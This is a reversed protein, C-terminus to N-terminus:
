STTPSHRFWSRVGCLLLGLIGYLVFNTGFVMGLLFLKSGFTTPEALGLIMAPALVLMIYPNFLSNTRLAPISGLAYLAMAVLVGICGWSAFWRAFRRINAM